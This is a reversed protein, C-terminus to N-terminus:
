RTRWAAILDRAANEMRFALKSRQLTLASRYEQDTALRRKHFTDGHLFDVVAAGTHLGHVIGLYDCLLGISVDKHPSRMLGWQYCYIRRDFVFNYIYGIPKPGARVRLLQIEGAAFRRNVLDAHFQRFWPSELSTSFGRDQWDALHLNALESLYTQAEPLTAATDISLAGNQEVMKRSKRLHRRTKKGLLAEFDGGSARVKDLDVIHSTLDRSVLGPAQLAAAHQVYHPAVGSLQIEDWEGQQLGAVLRTIAAREITLAGVDQTLFGNHEITLRDYPMTGTEHLHLRRSSILSRRRLRKEVLIGLGVTRDRHHVRLVLLRLAAPIHALWCEIWSWSQFFSPQGQCQLNQWSNALDGVDTLPMLEAHLEDLAITAPRSDAQTTDRLVTNTNSVM